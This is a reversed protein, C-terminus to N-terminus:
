GTSAKGINALLARYSQQGLELSLFFAHGDKSKITRRHPPIHSTFVRQILLMIQGYLLYAIYLPSCFGGLSFFLDM